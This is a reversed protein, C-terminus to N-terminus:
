FNTIRIKFAQLKILVVTLVDGLDLDHQPHDILLLKVNKVRLNQHGLEPIEIIEEIPPLIDPDPSDGLFFSFSMPIFVHLNKLLLLSGKISRFVNM